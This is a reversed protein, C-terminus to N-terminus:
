PDDASSAETTPNKKSKKKHARAEAPAKEDRKRKEAARLTAESPFPIKIDALLKMLQRHNIGSAISCTVAKCNVEYSRDNDKPFNRSTNVSKVESCGDCRIKFISALGIKTEAEVRSLSLRSHCCNCIMQETLYGMDMIRRGRLIYKAQSETVECDAAVPEQGESSDNTQTELRTERRKQESEKVSRRNQIPQTASVPTGSSKSM